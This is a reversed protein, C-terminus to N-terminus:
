KKKKKVFYNVIGGGIIIVLAVLIVTKSAEQPVRGRGGISDAYFTLEYEIELPDGMATTDAIVRMPEDMATIPIVFTSNSGDTTQNYFTEGGVVMYDYYSSSWLLKAYGKGDEVILWTPSTVSARGSGGTMDVDISYVGDAEEMAIPEVPEGLRRPSDQEEEILGEYLEGVSNTGRTIDYLRIADEIRDYDPIVYETTGRPVTGADFVVQRGYWKQRNVSFSALNIGANFAEVPITFTFREGDVELPIYDEYPAAAAEQP